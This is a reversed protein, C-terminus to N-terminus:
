LEVGPAESSEAAPPEPLDPDPVGFIDPLELDPHVKRPSPGGAPAPQAPIPAGRANQAAAPISTGLLAPADEPADRGGCGATAAVM